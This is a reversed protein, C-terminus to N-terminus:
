AAEARGLMRHFSLLADAVESVILEFALRGSQADSTSADDSYGDSARWSGHRQILPRAAPDISNSSDPPAVLREPFRDHRVTDPALALMLSTEFGGAHGPVRGLKSAGGDLMLASWALTWYSAAGALVDHRLALERAALRVVEENGGHSNLLFIRRFGSSVLADCLDHLVRILTESSLSLAGAFDLHHHSAGFVVTPCVVVDIETGIREAAAEAISTGIIADVRVPLHPGHQETAGVPLVALAEPALLRIEERTLDEFRLHM